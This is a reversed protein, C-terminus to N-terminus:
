TALCCSSYSSNWIWDKTAVAFNVRLEPYERFMSQQKQILQNTISQKELEKQEKELRFLEQLTTFRAKM